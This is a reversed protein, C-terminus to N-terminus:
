RYTASVNDVIFSTPRSTNERGQFHIQLSRGIYPTLDFTHKIYGLASGPGNTSVLSTFTGIEALRSGREDLLRVTLVDNASTEQTEIRLRFTLTAATSEEPVAFRQFIEDTHATGRGAMLAYRFGMFARLSTETDRGFITQGTTVWGTGGSEFGGNVVLQEANAVTFSVAAPEVLKDGSAGYVVATMTHVRAALAQTPLVVVYPSTKSSAALEGNVSYEVRSVQGPNVGSLTRIRFTVSREGNDADAEAIASLPEDSVLSVNDIRFKPVGAAVTSTFRLEVTKGRYAMLNFTRK